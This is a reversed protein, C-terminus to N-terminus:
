ADEETNSDEKENSEKNEGMEEQAKEAVSEVASCIAKGDSNYKMSDLDKVGAATSGINPLNDHSWSTTWM